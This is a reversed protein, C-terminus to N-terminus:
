NYLEKHLRVERRRIMRTMIMNGGTWVIVDALFLITPNVIRSLMVNVVLFIVATLLIVALARRTSLGLALLKHHIHCRDPMFPNRGLRVRHYYVRLVDFTPVIIPAFACIVPNYDKLGGFEHSNTMSLALFSIMVGITLSGTDGMFIKKRKLADGFYNFYFFPLLTGFTAWALMAYIHQGSLHFIIGYCIMAIMSLGSALGDIGDILNIANIIYVIVPVTLITGLWVPVGYLGFLGEFDTFIAGGCILLLAVIIQVVFKASYRVGILDDAMGILFILMLGCILFLWGDISDALAHNMFVVHDLLSIGCILSLSFLISPVFAFGGLRPVTGKHIKRDDQVDFLQRRFAVLLIQPIIIGSLLLATVSTGIYNEIWYSIM